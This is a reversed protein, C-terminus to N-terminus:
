VGLLMEKEVDWRWWQDDMKIRGYGIWVRKEEREEKRAIEELKWRMKREKWTWDEVIKEERGRLSGRKTSIERRQEESGLRVWIMEKGKGSEGEIRKYGAIDVKAEMVRLIGEIAERRKGEKVEIGKILINRRRKEREQFELRRKVEKIRDEIGERCEIRREKFGKGDRRAVELEEIRKELRKMCERIKEKEERWSREQDKIEKRLGNIEERM